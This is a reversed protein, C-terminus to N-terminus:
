AMATFTALTAATRIKVPLSHKNRAERYGGNQHIGCEAGKGTKSRCLMKVYLTNFATRTLGPPASPAADHSRLLGSFSLPGRTMARLNEANFTCFAPCSAFSLNSGPRLSYSRSHM